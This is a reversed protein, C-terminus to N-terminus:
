SQEETKRGHRVCRDTGPARWNWCLRSGLRKTCRRAKRARGGFRIGMYACHMYALTPQGAYPHRALYRQRRAMERRLAIVEPTRNLEEWWRQVRRREMRKQSEITAM